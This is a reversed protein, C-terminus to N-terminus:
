EILGSLELQNRILTYYLGKQNLLEEHKGMEVIKGKDIVVIQDSNRITSLRHAIVVATRDKLVVNLARQILIETFVDVSSTAEDLIIIRPDALLVAAFVVLQRQGISLRGGREHIPTDLKFDLKQVYNKLGVAELANWMEQESANPNGLKLNERISFSFLFFDQPVIAIHKRYSPLSVKGIDTEDVYIHGEQPQYMRSLLASITTKGAGTYGVLAVKNGAPIELSFNNLIPKDEIYKFSVKDFVIKGALKNFQKEELNWPTTTETDFIAQIREAGTLADQLQEYFNALVVIPRFMITNMNLFAVLTGLTINNNIVRFGGVLVLLVMALSSLFLLASFFSINVRNAVIQAHKRNYNHNAYIVQNQEERNLAKTVKIGGISEALYAMLIANTRRVEKRRPRSFIRAVNALILVFPILLFSVVALVPDLFIIVIALALITFFNLINQVIAGGLFERIAEVDSTTRSMIRGVENKDHYSMDLEQLHEFIDERINQTAKVGVIGIIYAQKSTSFYILIQLILYIFTLLGVDFWLEDLLNNSTLFVKLPRILEDLLPIGFIEPSNTPGFRDVAKLLLLPGTVTFIAVFIMLILTIGIERKYPLAYSFIFRFLQTDSYGFTGRRTEKDADAHIAAAM